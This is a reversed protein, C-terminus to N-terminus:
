RLEGGVEARGHVPGRRDQGLFDLVVFAGHQHRDLVADNRLVAGREEAGDFV